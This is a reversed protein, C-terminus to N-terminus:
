INPWHIPNAKTGVMDTFRLRRWEELPSGPVVSGLVGGWGRLGGVGGLGEVGVCM